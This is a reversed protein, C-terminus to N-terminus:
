FNLIKATSDDHNNDAAEKVELFPKSVEHLEKVSDELMNTQYGLRLLANYAKEYKKIEVAKKRAVEVLEEQVRYWSSNVGLAGLAKYMILNEDKTERYLKEYDTSHM